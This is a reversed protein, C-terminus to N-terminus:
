CSIVPYGNTGTWLKRQVHVMSVGFYILKNKELGCPLHPPYNKRKSEMGHRTLITLVKTSKRAAVKAANSRELKPTNTM